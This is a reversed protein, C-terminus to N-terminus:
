KLKQPDENKIINMFIQQQASKTMKQWEQFYKVKKITKPFTSM